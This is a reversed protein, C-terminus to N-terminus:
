VFLSSIQIFVGLLLIKLGLVILYRDKWVDIRVLLDRMTSPTHQENNKDTLVVDWRSTGLKHAEHVTFVILVIDDHQGYAENIISLIENFGEDNEHLQVDQPREDLTKQILKELGVNIQKIPCRREILRNLIPIKDGIAVLGGCVEIIMGTLELIANPELGM